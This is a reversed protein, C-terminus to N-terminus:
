RSPRRGRDPTTVPSRTGRMESGTRPHSRQAPSSRQTPPPGPRGTRSPQPTPSAKSVDSAPRGSPQSRVSPRQEARRPDTRRGSSSHGPTAGITQASRSTMSARSPPGASSSGGSAAPAARRPEVQGRAPSLQPESGRSPPQRSAMSSRPPLGSPQTRVSLQPGTRRPQVPATRARTETETRPSRTQRAPTSIAPSTEPPRPRVSLQSPTRRPETHQDRPRPEPKRVEPVRASPTPLPRSTGVSMGSDRVTATPSPRTRAPEAVATTSRNAPTPNPRPDRSMRSARENTRPKPVAAVERRPQPVRLARVSPQVGPSRRASPAMAPRRIAVQPRSARVPRTESRSPPAVRAQRPLNDAPSIRSHRRSALDERIRSAGIRNREVRASRVPTPRNELLRGAAHARIAPTGPRADSGIRVGKPSDPRLTGKGLRGFAGRGFDNKSVVTVAHRVHQNRYVHEGPAYPVRAHVSGPTVRYARVPSRRGYWPRYPDFPALPFWGVCSGAYYGSSFTVGCAATDSIDAFVVLAPSWVPRIVTPKVDVPVWCWEHREVYVWRGYHYPVWGWPEDSVWVWECPARWVWRGCRYPAWDAVTVRPRWAWGYVDLEVWDGYDDLERYGPVRTSVYCRSEAAAAAADRVDCWREFEDDVRYGVDDLRPADRDFIVLANGAAVHTGVEGALFLTAAGLRVHLEAEGSDQVTLRFHAHDEVVLSFLTSHIELPPRAYDVPRAHVWLDGQPVVLLTSEEDLGALEVYTESGLRIAVDDGLEIEASGEAEAYVRDEALLPANIQAEVWDEDTTREMIVPDEVYSIRAVRVPGDEQSASVSVGAATALCIAIAAGISTLRPERM